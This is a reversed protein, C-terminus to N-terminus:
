GTIAKDNFGFLLQCQQDTGSIEDSSSKAPPADGVGGKWWCSLGAKLSPGLLSQIVSLIVCFGNLKFEARNLPCWCCAARRPNNWSVDVWVGVVGKLLYGVQMLMSIPWDLYHLLLHESTHLTQVSVTSRPLSLVHFPLVYLINKFHLQILCDFLILPLNLRLSLHM